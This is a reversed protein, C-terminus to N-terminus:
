QMGLHGQLPGTAGQTHWSLVPIGSANESPKHYEFSFGQAIWLRFSALLVDSLKQKPALGGKHIGLHPTLKSHEQSCSAEQVALQARRGQDMQGCGLLM